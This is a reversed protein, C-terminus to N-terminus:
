SKPLQRAQAAVSEKGHESPNYGYTKRFLAAFHSINHYGVMLAAESVNGKGQELIKRAENMRLARVYGFVTTGFLEKFGLKLKYDNLGALRALELLSPPKRWRRNLIERAEHLCRIDEANLKSLTTRVREEKQAGDLHHVLLENAKGELYLKRLSGSYPCQKMQEVIHAIHPSGATQRCYASEDTLRALDPHLERFQRIDLRLEMHWLREQPYLEAHVKSDRIFIFNSVGPALGYSSARGGTDWCGQGSLTYTIELHPYHIGVDMTVPEPLNAEFWNIEMGPRLVVRQVHGAGGLIPVTYQYPEQADTSRSIDSLQQFVCDLNRTNMQLKLM